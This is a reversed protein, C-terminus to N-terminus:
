GAGGPADINEVDYIVSTEEQLKITEEIDKEINKIYVKKITTLDKVIELSLINYYLENSNLLAWLNGDIKEFRIIKGITATNKYKVIDGINFKCNNNKNPQLKNM